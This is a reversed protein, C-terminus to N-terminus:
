GNYTLRVWYRGDIFDDGGVCVFCDDSRNYWCYAMDERWDLRKVLVRENPLPKEETLDFWEVESLDVVGRM